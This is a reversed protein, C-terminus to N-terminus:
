IHDDWTNPIALFVGINRFTINGLFVWDCEYVRKELHGFTINHGIFNGWPRQQQAFHTEAMM